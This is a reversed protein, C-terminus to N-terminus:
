FSEWQFWDDWSDTTNNQITVIESIPACAEEIRELLIQGMSKEDSVENPNPTLYDNNLVQAQM